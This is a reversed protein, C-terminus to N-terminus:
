PEGKEEIVTPVREGPFVKMLFHQTAAVCARNIALAEAVSRYLDDTMRKLQQALARGIIATVEESGIADGTPRAAELRAQMRYHLTSREKLLAVVTQFQAEALDLQSILSGSAHLKILFM